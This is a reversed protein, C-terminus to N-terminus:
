AIVKTVVGSGVTRGGERIAFQLKEEMAVEDELEVEVTVTDGPMVMEIGSGLTAKGTVNSTRFFFQPRYGSFFPTHRGGEEKTLVYVEAAFKRRPTISSPAALVQGRQLEGADVGRLLLGANDGAVAEDMAQNFTEIDTVVVKRNTKMGVIEVAEGKRVRGREIKGTAVTGRGTISHIGEVAMLFPRDMSREPLPIWTDLAQVLQDIARCADDDGPNDLAPKASGRIVPTADGDFGYKTLQERVEVEVLDILESDDVLDVKNLFVVVSAPVGVQRAPSYTSGRRRCRVM